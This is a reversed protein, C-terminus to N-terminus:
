SEVFRSLFSKTSHTNEIVRRYSPKVKSRISSVERFHIPFCIKAFPIPLSVIKEGKDIIKVTNPDLFIREPSFSLRIKNWTKQTNNVLEIAAPQRFSNLTHLAHKVTNRVLSKIRQLIFQIRDRNNIRRSNRIGLADPEFRSHFPEGIRRPNVEGFRGAHRIHTQRSQLTNLTPHM